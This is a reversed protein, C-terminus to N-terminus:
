MFGGWCCSRGYCCCQLGLCALCIIGNRCAPNSLVSGGDEGYQSEYSSATGSMTNYAQRYEQNSPDMQVAREFHQHAGDYWGRRFLVIGKLYNWEAGRDSIGNLLSEATYLDGRNIAARVQAFVPNTYSSYGGGYSQGGYSGNQRGYNQGNNFGGGNKRMKEIMDYAENVQKLKESARAQASANGAYRDPHYKKVLQRYAKKIEDDSANPSVGLVEYPNM